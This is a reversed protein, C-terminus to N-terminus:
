SHVAERKTHKRTERQNKRKKKESIFFAGCGRNKSGLKYFVRRILSEERVRSVIM